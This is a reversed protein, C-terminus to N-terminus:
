DNLTLFRNTEHGMLDEIWKLYQPSLRKPKKTSTPIVTGKIKLRNAMNRIDQTKMSYTKALGSYDQIGSALAAEINALKLKKKTGKLVEKLNTKKIALNQGDDMRALIQDLKSMFQAQRVPEIIAKRLKSEFTFVQDKKFNVKGDKLEATNSVYFESCATLYSYSNEPENTKVFKRSVMTEPEASGSRVKSLTRKDPKYTESM